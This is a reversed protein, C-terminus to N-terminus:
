SSRIAILTILNELIQFIKQNHKELKKYEKRLNSLELTIKRDMDM